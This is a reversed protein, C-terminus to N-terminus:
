YEEEATILDPNKEVVKKLGKMYYGARPDGAVAMARAALIRFGLAQKARPAVLYSVKYNAAMWGKAKGILLGDVWGDYPKMLDRYLADKYLTVADAVRDAAILAYIHELLARNSTSAQDLAKRSLPIADNVRGRYREYRAVRVLHLATRDEEAWGKIIKGARGLKGQDLAADVSILQAWLQNQSVLDDLREDSPYEDGTLVGASLRVAAYEQNDKEEDTMSELAKTLATIDQAEYAEVADVSATSLKAAKATERAAGFDGRRLQMRAALQMAPTYGKAFEQVRKLAEDVLERENLRAGFQALRVLLAPGDANGIAAKLDDKASHDEEEVESVLKTLDRVNALAPPLSKAEAPELKATDPPTKTRKPDTVWALAQLARSMGGLNPDVRAAEKFADLASKAVAPGKSLLTVRVSLLKPLYWDEEVEAASEYRKTADTVEGVRELLMGSLILALADKQAAEDLKTAKSVDQPKPDLASLFDVFAVQDKPTDEDLDKALEKARAASREVKPDTLNLVVQQKLKLLKAESELSEIRYEKPLGLAGVLWNSLDGFTGIGFSHDVHKSLGRVEEVDSSWLLPTAQTLDARLRDQEVVVNRRGFIFVVLAIVSVTIVITKLNANKPNLRDLLVAVRGKALRAEAEIEAQKKDKKSKKLRKLLSVSADRLGSLRERM